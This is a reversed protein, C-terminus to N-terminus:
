GDTVGELLKDVLVVPNEDDLDVSGSPSARGKHVPNAVHLGSLTRYLVALMEREAPSAPQVHIGDQWWKINM